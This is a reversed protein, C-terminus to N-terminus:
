DKRAAELAKMVRERYEPANGGVEDAQVKWVESLAQYFQERDAKPFPAIIELSGNQSFEEIAAKDHSMDVAQELTRATLKKGAELVVQQVDPPLTEWAARNVGIATPVNSYTHLYSGFDVVEQLSLSKVAQPPYLACDVVGTQVALYLDNQPVIQAAVGLKEFTEVQDKAWVRLKRSRLDTLTGVGDKCLVYVDAHPQLAWGVVQVDWRDQYYASYIEAVTPFVKVNEQPDLVPGQIFAMALEPADRGFYGAYLQSMEMAGASLMRLSDAAKVGLSEAFFVDVKLKEGAERNIDEAFAAMNRADPRSEADVVNFRWTRDAAVAAAMGLPPVFTIMMGIALARKMSRLLM